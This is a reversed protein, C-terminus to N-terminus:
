KLRRAMNDIIGLANHDGVVVNNVTATTLLSIRFSSSIGFLRKSTDNNFSKSIRHFREVDAIPCLDTNDNDCSLVYKKM